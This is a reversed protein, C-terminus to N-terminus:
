KLKPIQEESDTHVIEGTNPTYEETNKTICNKIIYCVNLKYYNEKLWILPNMQKNTSTIIIINDKLAVTQTKISSLIYYVTVYLKFLHELFFKASM